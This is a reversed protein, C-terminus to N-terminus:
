LFSTSSVADNMASVASSHFSSQFFRAVPYALSSLVTQPRSFSLMEFYVANESQVWEVMFRMEGNEVHINTTGYAFGFRKIDGSEEAEDTVYVIRALSLCWTGMQRSLIGITTNTEIPADYPFIQVWDPFYHFKWQKLALVAADFASHGVGIKQRTHDIDYRGILDSLESKARKSRTFSVEKYSFPANQNKRLTDGIYDKSPQFISIM